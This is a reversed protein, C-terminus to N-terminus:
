SRHSTRAFSNVTPERNARRGRGNNFSKNSHKTTMEKGDVLKCTLYWQGGGGFWNRIAKGFIPDFCCRIM